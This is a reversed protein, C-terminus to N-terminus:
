SVDAPRPQFDFHRCVEAFSSPHAALWTFLDLEVLAATLLDVAYLGDRYRYLSGPSTSPAATLDLAM